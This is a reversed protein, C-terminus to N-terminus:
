LETVPFALSTRTVMASSFQLVFKTALGESPATFILLADPKGLLGLSQKVEVGPSTQINKLLKVAANAKGPIIDLQCVFLM